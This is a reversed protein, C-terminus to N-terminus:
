KVINSKYSSHGKQIRETFSVNSGHFQRKNATVGGYVETYTCTSTLCVSIIIPSRLSTASSRFLLPTPPPMLFIFSLPFGSPTILYFLFSIHFPSCYFPCSPFLCLFTPPLLLPHIFILSFHFWFNHLVIITMYKGYVKM